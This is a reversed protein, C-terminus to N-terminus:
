INRATAASSFAPVRVAASILTYFSTLIVNSDLRSGNNRIASVASDSFVLALSFVNTLRSLFNHHDPTIPFSHNFNRRCFM